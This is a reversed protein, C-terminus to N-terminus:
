AIDNFASKSLSHRQTAEFYIFYEQFKICLLAAISRVVVQIITAVCLLAMIGPCGSTSLIM